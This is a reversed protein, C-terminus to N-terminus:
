MSHKLPHRHSTAEVVCELFKDKGQHGDFRPWGPSLASASFMRLHGTWSGNM